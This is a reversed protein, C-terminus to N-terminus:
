RRSTFFYHETINCISYNKFYNKYYVFININNKIVKVTKSLSLRHHYIGYLLYLELRFIILEYTVTVTMTNSTKVSFNAKKNKM